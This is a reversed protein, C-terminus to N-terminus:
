CNQGGGNICTTYQAERLRESDAAAAARAAPGGPIEPLLNMETMGAMGTMGELNMGFFSCLVLAILGGLLMEKNQRLVAPCYKGGYYCLAVLAVLLLMLNNM